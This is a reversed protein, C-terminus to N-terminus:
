ILYVQTGMIRFGEIYPNTLIKEKDKKIIKKNSGLKLDIIAPYEM